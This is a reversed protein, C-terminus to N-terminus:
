AKRGLLLTVNHRKQLRKRITKHRNWRRRQIALRHLQSPVSLRILLPPNPRDPAASTRHRERNSCTVSFNQVTLFERLPRRDAEADLACRRLTLRPHVDLFRRARLCDQLIQFERSSDRFDSPSIPLAGAPLQKSRRFRASAPPM